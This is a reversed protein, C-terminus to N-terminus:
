SASWGIHIHNQHDGDSSGGPAGTLDSWRLGIEDPRGQGLAIAGEAFAGSVAFSSTVADGDVAAIDAARGHWHNSIRDTGNVFQSHGSKLTSVAIQHHAAAWALFDIVRQDIVGDVLDQRAGPSLKLNPNNLLAEADGPTVAGGAPTAAYAAALELVMNVYWSAHYNWIADCLRSPDGAGNACLYNAAGWTSDVSSYVDTTGDHDGDVGYAARTDALFQMPGMAGAENAGSHVGPENSRGHHSEVSGIAALVTWPTNCTSATQQHVPLLEPPIDALARHAVGPPPPTRGISGLRGTTTPGSGSHNGHRQVDRVLNVM